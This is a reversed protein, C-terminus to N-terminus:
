QHVMVVYLSQNDLAEYQIANTLLSQFRILYELKAVLLNYINFVSDGIAFASTNSIDGFFFDLCVTM